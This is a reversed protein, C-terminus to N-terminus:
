LGWVDSERLYGSNGDRHRVLIWGGDFTTELFDLIVGREVNFVAPARADPASLVATADAAVVTRRNSLESCAVWGTALQADRVQCWVDARAVIEVPMGRPALFVKSAQPPRADWVVAVAVGVSKMPGAVATGSWAALALVSAVLSAALAARARSGGRCSAPRAPTM